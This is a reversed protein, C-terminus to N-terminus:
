RGSKTLKAIAQPAPQEVDPTLNLYHATQEGIRSFSPGAVLGGYTLNEAAKPDYAMVLCVVQPDNAPFFGVFSTVYRNDYYGGGNPKAINATGTKGGASYGPITAPFATGRKSVVEKLASRLKAASEESVVQRLQVPDFNIMQKGDDDVVSDVIQPMMLKGGNAIASMATVMQIPTVCVGQGMPMRTITLVNWGASKPSHVIGPQEGPLNIGTREGFGFARVYEYFRQDGLKLALKAAVINSSKVVGDFVSLDPHDGHGHDKLIKGGYSMRGGDTGIVTDLSVAKDNLAASFPVIKFVSGPEVVNIVACNKMAEPKIVLPKGNQATGRSLDNPDFCPRNAMALIRGSKPEMMIATAFEPRYQKFLADLETEVIHQIRMDITLRVNYGDRATREQGRYPVIEKGSRDREIYRFGDYGRLWKDMSREVGEVGMRETEDAGNVETHKEGMFGLVHCLVENNPYIRRSDPETFIGRISKKTRKEYDAMRQFVTATEAETLSRKLVVYKRPTDLRPLLKARDMKLPGALTEALDAAPVKSLAIVSGDAVLTNLPENAALLEGNMDRIEGRGAQIEQKKVHKEAALKGFKEHQDVQLYVLRASFGTFCCMLGFCAIIARVRAITKM